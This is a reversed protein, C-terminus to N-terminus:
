FLALVSGLLSLATDAIPFHMDGEATQEEAASPPPPAVPPNPIHGAHASFALALVLASARLTKRM